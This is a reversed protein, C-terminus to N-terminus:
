VGPEAWDGELGGPGVGPVNGQADNRQDYWLLSAHAARNTFVIGWPQEAFRCKRAGALFKCQVKLHATPKTLGFFAPGKYQETLPFHFIASYPSHFRLPAVRLSTVARFSYPTLWSKM